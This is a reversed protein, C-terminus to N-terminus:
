HSIKSTMLLYLHWIFEISYTLIYSQLNGLCQADETDFFHDLGQSLIVTCMYQIDFFESDLLCFKDFLQFVPKNSAREDTVQDSQSVM